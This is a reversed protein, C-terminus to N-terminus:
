SDLLIRKALIQALWLCFIHSVKCPTNRLTFHFDRLCTWSKIVGHVTAWWAGRDMSNELCSYQLPNGNGERSSRRLGTRGLIVPVNVQFTCKFGKLGKQVSLVLGKSLSFCGAGM